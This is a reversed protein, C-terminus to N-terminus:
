KISYFFVFPIKYKLAKYLLSVWLQSFNKFSVFKKYPNLFISLRVVTGVGAGMRSNTSKNSLIYNPKLFFWYKSFRYLSKKRFSRFRILKKFQRLYVLEFRTKRLTYLSLLKLQLINRNIIKYSRRKFKHKKKYLYDFSM